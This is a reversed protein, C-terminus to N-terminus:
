VAEKKDSKSFKSFIDLINDVANVRHTYLELETNLKNIEENSLNPNKLKDKIEDIKEEFETKKKELERQSDKGYINDLDKLIKEDVEDKNDTDTKSFDDVKPDLKDILKKIFEVGDYSDLNNDQMNKAINGLEFLSNSLSILVDMKANAEKAAANMKSEIARIKEEIESQSLNSCLIRSIQEQFKYAINSINTHISNGKCIANSALSVVNRANMRDLSQYNSRLKDIRTYIKDVSNMIGTDSLESSTSKVEKSTEQVTTKSSKTVTPSSVKIFISDVNM